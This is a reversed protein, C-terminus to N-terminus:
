TSVGKSDSPLDLCNVTDEEAEAEPNLEPELDVVEDEISSQEYDSSESSEEEGGSTSPSTDEAESQESM